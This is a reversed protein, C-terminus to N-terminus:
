LPSKQFRFASPSLSRHAIRPTAFTTPFVFFFPAASPRSAFVRRQRRRAHFFRFVDKVSGLVFSFGGDFSQVVERPAKDV